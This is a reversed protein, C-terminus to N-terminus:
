IGPSHMGASPRLGPQKRSNRLRPSSSTKKEGDSNTVEITLNKVGERTLTEDKEDRVYVSYDKNQTALTTASSAEALRKQVEQYVQAVTLKHEMAKAKDIVVRFEADSDEQGDSVNQTGEVAEVLKAVEKSIDSLQDLEKGKIQIQIGSGGLASMDMSQTSVNVECPLGATRKLIEKELEEGSLQKEEKLLLYMSISNDNGSSGMGMMSAMGGGGSMAGISEIDELDEIAAIVKDACVTTDAFSTGKETTITMSVQTSEMEPMFATGKKFALVASLGFLVLALLLVLFKLKLVM